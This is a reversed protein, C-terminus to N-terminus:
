KSVILVKKQQHKGIYGKAVMKNSVQISLPEKVQANTAITLGPTLEGLESLKIKITGALVEITTKEQSLAVEKSTLQGKNKVAGSIGALEKIWYRDTYFILQLDKVQCEISLPEQKPVPKIKFLDVDSYDAQKFVEKFLDSLVEEAVGNLVDMCKGSDDVPLCLLRYLDTKKYYLNVKESSFRDCNNRENEGAICSADVVSNVSVNFKQETWQYFFGSLRDVLFDSILQRNTESLWFIPNSM